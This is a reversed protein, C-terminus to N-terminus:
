LLSHIEKKGWDTSWWAFRPLANLGGYYNVAESLDKFVHYGDKPIDDKKIPNYLDELRMYEPSESPDIYLTENALTTVEVWSHGYPKGIFNDAVIINAQIGHRELLWEIYAAKQGCCPDVYSAEQCSCPIITETLMGYGLLRIIDKYNSEFRCKSMNYYNNEDSVMDYSTSLNGGWYTEFEHLSGTYYRSNLLEMMFRLIIPNDYITPNLIDSTKLFDQSSRISERGQNVFQPKILPLLSEVNANVFRSNDLDNSSSLDKVERSEHSSLDKVERSVHSSLDKIEGSEHSSLDKIEGSEHSSLDKIEGSEHSSLDKIEGSEHSSLDKIEGSEHSSLDKIEGSEHSSLDKLKGRSTPVSTKLKGRSTPVSTKLKGRSTPVSTKLKERCM